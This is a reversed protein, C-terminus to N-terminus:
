RVRQMSERVIIKAPVGVYTGPISIDQIVAGGAGVIVDNCINLNNVVSAGVCIWTRRGVHVTGAITAGPSIHVYDDLVCDHDVSALTNIICHKGIVTGPNVVVGAMLVSGVGVEVEKALVARPHVVTAFRLEQPLSEVIRQRTENSGIGVVFEAKELWLKADSVEGLRPLEGCRAASADDLVGIVRRGQCVLIDAIVRAHGGAGIIVVPDSKM